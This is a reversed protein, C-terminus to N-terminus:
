NSKAELASADADRGASRYAAALRSRVDTREPQEQFARELLMIAQDPRHTALLSDAVLMALEVRKTTLLERLDRILATCTPHHDTALDEVSEFDPLFTGKSADLVRQARAVQPDSLLRRGAYEASVALLDIADVESGDLKFSMVQPEVVIRDRLAPPLERLGQHIVNRLHKLQTERDLRPSAQRGIEDRPLRAKPDRIAAVLLRLWVFATVSRGSLAGAWDKGDHHVQLGGFTRVLVEPPSGDAPEIPEYAPPAGVVTSVAASLGAAARVPIPRARRRLVVLGAALVVWVVAVSTLGIAPLISTPLNQVRQDAILYRGSSDKRMWFDGHFGITQETPASNPGASSTVTKTGDEQVEIVLTPDIPDQAKLITLSGAQFSVTPPANSLSMQQSVDQLANGTLRGSILSPDGKSLAAAEAEQDALFDREVKGGLGTDIGSGYSTRVGLGFVATVVIVGALFLVSLGVVLAAPLRRGTPTPASETSIARGDYPPKEPGIAGIEPCRESILLRLYSPM